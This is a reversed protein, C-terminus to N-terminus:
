KAAPMWLAELINGDPDRFYFSRSGDRHGRVPDVSVGKAALAEHAALLDEVTDVRLGVHPPHKNSSKRILGLDDGGLSVNAWDADGDWEVRFGLTDRYFGLSREVDEVQIGVHGMKKFLAM